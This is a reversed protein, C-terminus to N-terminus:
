RFKANDFNRIDQRKLQRYKTKVLNRSNSNLSEHNQIAIECTIKSNLRVVLQLLFDTSMRNHERTIM